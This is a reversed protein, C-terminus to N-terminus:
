ADRDIVSDSADGPMIAPRCGAWTPCFEFERGVCGYDLIRVGCAEVAACRLGEPAVATYWGGCVEPDPDEVWRIKTVGLAALREVISM